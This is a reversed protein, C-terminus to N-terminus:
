VIMCAEPWRQKVKQEEPHVMRSNPPSRQFDVLEGPGRKSESCDEIPSKWAPGQAHWDARRFDRSELTTIRSNTKNGKRVIRFNIMEHHFCRLSSNQVLFHQDVIISTLFANLSQLTDNLINNILNLMILLSYFLYDQTEKSSLFGLYILISPGGIWMCCAPCVTDM